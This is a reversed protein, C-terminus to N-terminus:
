AKILTTSSNKFNIIFTEPNIPEFGTYRESEDFDSFIIKPKTIIEKTTGYLGKDDTLLYIVGGESRMNRYIFCHSLILLDANNAFNGLKKNDRAKKIISYLEDGLNLEEESFKEEHGECIKAYDGIKELTMMTMRTKTLTEDKSVFSWFLEKHAVWFKMLNGFDRDSNDLEYSRLRKTTAIYFDKENACNKRACSIENEIAGLFRGFKGLILNSFDTKNAPLIVYTHHKKLVEFCEKCKCAHYELKEVGFLFISPYVINADPIFLSEATM